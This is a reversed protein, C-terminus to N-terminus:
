ATTALIAVRRERAEMNKQPDAVAPYIYIYFIYFLDKKILFFFVKNSSMRTFGVIDAFLISVDDMNAVNFPRFVVSKLIDTNLHHFGKTSAGSNYYPEEASRFWSFIFM